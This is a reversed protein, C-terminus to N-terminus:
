ARPCLSSATVWSSSGRLASVGGAFVDGSPPGRRHCQGLIRCWATTRGQPRRRAACTCSCRRGALIEGQWEWPSVPQCSSQCIYGAALASFAHLQARERDDSRRSLKQSSASTTAAAATVSSRLGVSPPRAFRMGCRWLSSLTSRLRRCWPCWQTRRPVAGEHAPFCSNHGVQTNRVSSKKSQYLM